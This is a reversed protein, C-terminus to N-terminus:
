GGPRGVELVPSADRDGWRGLQTARPASETWPCNQVASGHHRPPPADKQLHRLYHHTLLPRTAEHQGPHPWPLQRLNITPFLGRTSYPPGLCLWCSLAIHSQTSRERQVKREKGTFISPSSNEPFCRRKRLCKKMPGKDSSELSAGRVLYWPGAQALLTLWGQSM